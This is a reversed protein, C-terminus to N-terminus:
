KNSNNSKCFEEHMKDMYKKVSESKKPPPHLCEAHNQQRYFQYSNDDIKKKKIVNDNLAIEDNNNTENEITINLSKLFKSLNASITYSENKCKNFKKKFEDLNLQYNDEDLLFFMENLNLKDICKDYILIEITDESEPGIKKKDSNDKQEVIPSSKEEDKSLYNQLRLNLHGLMEHQQTLQYFCLNLLKCHEESVSNIIGRYYIYYMFFSPETLGLFDTQFQFIRSREFLAKLDKQKLFDYYDSFGIKKCMKELALKIVPSTFIKIFHEELIKWM